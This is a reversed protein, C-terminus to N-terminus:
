VSAQMVSFLLDAHLQSGAQNPHVDDLMLTTDWAAVAEFPKYTDVLGVGYRRAITHLGVARQAHWEKNVAAGKEPNQTLILLPAKRVGWVNDMWTKYTSMWMEGFQVGMNHSQTLVTVQQGFYPMLKPRRTSDDLYPIDGGAKSGVLVTFVPAGVCDASGTIIPPWLDPLAPVTNPGDIGNRVRVEYIREGAITSVSGGLAVGVTASNDFMTGVGATTQTTGLQTKTVGDTSTYFKTTTAGGDDPNWVAVMWIDTGDAAPASANNCSHTVLATGDPSWTFSPRGSGTTTEAFTWGREGAGGSRAAFVQAVDYAALRMKVWVEIAGSIHPSQTPDLRRAIQVTSGGDLYRVGATGTQIITPVGYQQTADDWAQWRVTWNPYAAAVLQAFLYPWDTTDNTTSDGLVQM